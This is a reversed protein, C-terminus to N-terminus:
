MPGNIAIVKGCNPCTHVCDKFNDMCFPILCCGWGLGICVLLLCVLWVASGVQFEVRTIGPKLCFPCNVGVPVRSSKSIVSPYQPVIAVSVTSINSQYGAPPRNAPSSYQYASPQQQPVFGYAPPAEPAYMSYSPPPPPQSM